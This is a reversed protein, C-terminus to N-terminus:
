SIGKSTSEGVWRNCDDYIAKLDGRRLINEAGADNRIANMLTM